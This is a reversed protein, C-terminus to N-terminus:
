WPYLRRCSEKDTVSIAKTPCTQAADLIKGFKAGQENIVRSKPNIKVDREVHFVSPVIMECSCCAICKEPDVKVSVSIDKEVEIPGSDQKVESKVREYYEWFTQEYYKWFDQYADEYYRTYKRWDEQPTHDSNRAGWQNHKNFNRSDSHTNFTTQSRKNNSKLTHYAEAIMKFKNGDNNELHKDPHYKLALKRYAAKIEKM